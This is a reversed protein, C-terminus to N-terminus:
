PFILIHKGISIYHAVIGLTYWYAPENQFTAEFDTFNKNLEDEADQLREKFIQMYYM